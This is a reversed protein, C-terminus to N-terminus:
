ADGAEDDTTNEVPIDDVEREFVLSVQSCREATNSTLAQVIQEWPAGTTDFVSRRWKVNGAFSMIDSTAGAANFGQSWCSTARLVDGVREGNKGDKTVIPAPFNKPPKDVNLGFPVDYTVVFFESSAFIPRLSIPIPMVNEGDMPVELEVVKGVQDVGSLASESRSARRTQFRAPVFGNTLQGLLLIVILIQLSYNM